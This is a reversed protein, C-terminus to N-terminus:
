KDTNRENRVYYPEVQEFLSQLTYEFDGGTNQEVCPTQFACNSCSFRGPAPYISLEPNVMELAELGINYEIQEYETPSKYIVERNFYTIGENKLYVLMEDYCGEEYAERDYKMVTQLYLDYDTDQQKNVSFLCGKRRSKNQIPPQPYGKRQEHYIFGRVPISLTNLAWCYSAIQDDTLLFSHNDSITRATKWDIIWYGGKDDVAILDIRGEYVVPLGRFNAYAVVNDVDNDSLYNEFKKICRECKCWITDGTHPNPIVVAFGIETKFPTWGKDIEPAINGLYHRLMGVGLEVREKYDDEIEPALYAESNVELAHAKQEECIQQFGAIAQLKAAERDNTWTEPNYYLEMAYHYAVGFELPKATVNPYWQQRFTWNWRRRCARFARRESTHIEHYLGVAIMDDVSLDIDSMSM